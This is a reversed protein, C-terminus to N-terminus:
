AVRRAQMQCAGNTMWQLSDLSSNRRGLYRPFHSDNTETMPFRGEAAAAGGPAALTARAPWTPETPLADADAGAGVVEANAEADIADSWPVKLSM